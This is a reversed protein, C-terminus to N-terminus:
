FTDALALLKRVTNWNRATGTNHLKKDSLADGLKSRGMGEPYYVYLETGNLHFEEPGTYAKRVSEIAEIDPATRLFVVAIKAPEALQDESFPHAEVIARLQERTRLIVDSHFGFTQEIGAEIQSVLQDHEIQDSEFVVNGSQLLTQVGRLGLSELLTKLDAMRIKKNGGVNIGRLLAIWVTM